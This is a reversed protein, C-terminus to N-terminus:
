LVTVSNQQIVSAGAEAGVSVGDGSDSELDSESDTWSQLEPITSAFAPTAQGV